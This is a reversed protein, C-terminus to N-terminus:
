REVESAASKHSVFIHLRGGSVQRVVDAPGPTPFRQLSNRVIM